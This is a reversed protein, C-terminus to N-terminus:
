NKTSDIWGWLRTIHHISGKEEERDLDCRGVSGAACPYSLKPFASLIKPHMLCLIMMLNLSTIKRKYEASTLSFRFYQTWNQTGRYWLFMSMSYLIWCLTVLIIFLSYCREQSYCILSSHSNLRSFLLNLTDETDKFEQLSPSFISGLKKWHHWSLLCHHICTTGEPCWCNIRYQALSPVSACSELLPHPIEEMSTELLWGSIIKPLRSQTARSSCPFPCSSSWLQRVVEVMRHRQLETVEVISTDCVLWATRCHQQTKLLGKGLIQPLDKWCYSGEPKVTMM